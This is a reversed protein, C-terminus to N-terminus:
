PHERLFRDLSSRLSLVNDRDLRVGDLYLSEATASLSISRGDSAVIRRQETSDFEAPGNPLCVTCLKSGAPDWDDEAYECREAPGPVSCGTRHSVGTALVTFIIDDGM